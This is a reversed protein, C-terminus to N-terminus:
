SHVFLLAHTDISITRSKENESIQSNCSEHLM